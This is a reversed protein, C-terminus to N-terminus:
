VFYNKEKKGHLDNWWTVGHNIQPERQLKNVRSISNLKVWCLPFIMFVVCRCLSLIVQFLSGGNKKQCAKVEPAEFVACVRSDAKLKCDVM